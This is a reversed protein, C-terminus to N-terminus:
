LSATTLSEEEGAKVSPRLTRWMAELPRSVTCTYPAQVCVCVCVCVYVCVCVCVCVCECVCVCVCVCM